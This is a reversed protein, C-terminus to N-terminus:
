PLRFAVLADGLRPRLLASGGAAIVVYQRGDEESIFTMPTAAGDFPIPHSWLEDGTWINFARIRADMTAAIFVLGSKTIIAGGINPSGWAKPGELGMALPVRGLPVRWRLEGSDINVAALEGWPPANCPVGLPSLLVGRRMMYPAGKQRGLEGPGSGHSENADAPILRVWQALNMVNTVVMRREPDYAAGGWNSGGGYFPMQVSGRLSPPTYLGDARMDAMEDACWAKDLPTIGWADAQSFGQQAVPKPLIPIPQTPSTQEGEVDTQPVAQERTPFLYEGTARDLVYISGMKTVQVVAPVRGVLTEKHALVPQAPMDLDFLDHHVIQRVWREEGTRADLAVVANTRALDKKRFGGWYDPSPSSTPIFVTATEEDVSLPAWANAAGSKRREEAPIPNWSWVEIGSRVDVARVIGDPMDVNQNDGIATGIIALDEFIVAPSTINVVGQGQNDFTTNLDLVGNEAFDTCLDGTQADLAVLRGDLVPAIVRKQCSGDVGSEWYSVGRCILSHQQDYDRPLPPSPEFSWLEGGTEPEVAIVRNYPTCIFLKGDAYIPNAEFTTKRTGNEGNSFDGTNFVWVQELDKINAPTIEAAESYQGGGPQGGYQGWGQANANGWWVGALLLAWVLMARRTLAKAM